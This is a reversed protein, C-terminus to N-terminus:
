SNPFPTTPPTFNATYRAIGKTIRVEELWGNFYQIPASYRLAGLVLAEASGSIDTSNTVTTGIQTGDVFLRLNTGQRCAAMHYWVGDTPTWPAGILAGDGHSFRFTNSDSRRQFSWGKTSNEYNGVLTMVSTHAFFRAFLEITFDGTGFDWDVSSPTTVYDGSGDFLGSSGGFKSQATDIQANGNATWVKGTEDTFTTSGDTGDFHLLAVVSSWYPDGAATVYMNCSVDYHQGDDSTVRETWVYHAETTTNGTAVLDSGSVSVTVGAPRTGSYPSGSLAYVGDGGTIALPSGNLPSGVDTDTFAGTVTLEGYASQGFLMIEFDTVTTVSDIHFTYTDGIIAAKDWGTLTTDLYTQDATLTPKASACISDGGTAPFGGIPVKRVDVVLDGSTNALISVGDIIMPSAVYAYLEDSAAVGHFDKRIVLQNAFPSESTAYLGDDTGFSLANSADTSIKASVVPASPTTSDVEIGPGAILRKLAQHIRSKEWWGMAAM